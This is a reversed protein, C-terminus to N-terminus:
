LLWGAIQTLPGHFFGALMAGAWLGGFAGSIANGSRAGIASGILSGLLAEAGGEFFLAACAALFLALILADLREGNAKLRGWFTGRPPMALVLTM